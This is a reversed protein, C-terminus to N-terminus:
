GYALVELPSDYIQVGQARAWSKIDEFSCCGADEYEGSSSGCVAEGNLRVSWRNHRFRAYFTQGDSTEGSWQSPCATSTQALSVLIIETM